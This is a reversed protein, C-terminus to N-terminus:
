NRLQGLKTQCSCSLIMTSIRQRLPITQIIFLKLTNCLFHTEMLIFPYIGDNGFLLWSYQSLCTCWHVQGPVRCSHMHQCTVFLRYMSTYFGDYFIIKFLWQTSFWIHCGFVRFHCRRSDNIRSSRKVKVRGCPFYWWKFKSQLPSRHYKMRISTSNYHM